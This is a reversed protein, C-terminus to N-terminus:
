AFDEPLAWELALEIADELTARYGLVRQLGEEPEIYLRYNAGTISKSIFLKELFPFSPDTEFQYRKNKYSYKPTPKETM